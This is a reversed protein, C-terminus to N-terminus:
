VGQVLSANNCLGTLIACVQSESSASSQSQVSSASTQLQQFGVYAKNLERLLHQATFQHLPNRTYFM